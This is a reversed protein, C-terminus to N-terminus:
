SRGSSATPWRSRAVHTTWSSPRCDAGATWSGIVAPAELPRIQLSEVRREREALVAEAKAPAGHERVVHDYEPGFRQKLRARKRRAMTWAIAAVILLGVAGVVILLSMRDDM